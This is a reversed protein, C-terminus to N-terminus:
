GPAAVVPGEPFERTILERDALVPLWRVAGYAALYLVAVIVALAQYGTILAVYEIAGGVVAGLLNSAFSMDAAPSDRFSYTFCLNAFFVPAFALGAAAAYRLWPPDILVASPPVVWSVLLSGFLAVYWLTPSRRPLVSAVGISALVSLLIAFFVLANVVWTNGFLLGFSVLSRTELLLFAAGLLFFHPSFRRISVGVWRSAAFVSVLALLLVMGLVVIFPTAIAPEFMYLFPWDDTPEVGAAHPAMVEADPPVGLGGSLGPGNALVAGIEWGDDFSSVISPRGFTDALMGGLRDVLWPQRYFNYLVFIGGPKLHAKVEEFAEKTYLFSELRVNGTSSFLTLSDTLALIVLDYDKDSKRLFARGDDISTTVRPDQYPEFANMDVGIQHITPDIEVADIHGDGRQVSAAIDNGTGAGIILVDDFSHGPFWKGVQPYFGNLPHKTTPFGQHPVGNAAVLMETPLQKLTLRQYPSWLDSTTGTLMLCAVIAAASVFSWATVGRGLALLTILVAIVVTWGTPGVGAFSMATFVAIGALSGTIDIAYARLPPMSKLLGGLPLALAAMAAVVLAFVGMLMGINAEIGPEVSGGLLVDNSAAVTVNLQAASILKIVVFFLLPFPALRPGANRRGLIIGLGIGLFSAILILNTFFGFYVVNSPVWRILFLEVFLLTASTLFLRMRPDSLTPLPQILQRPTSLIM